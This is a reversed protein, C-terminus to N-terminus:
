RCSLSLSGTADEIGRSFLGSYGWLPFLRFPIQGELPEPASCVTKVTGSRSATTAPTMAAGDDM